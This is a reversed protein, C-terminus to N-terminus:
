GRPHASRVLREAAASLSKRNPFDDVQLPKHWTVSVEGGRPAGLVQLLHPGFDMDGWWGFFRPDLSDPATYAVSVPQVALGRLRESYLAAFLTSKFPLIRQGDTSTGEPFILLRQGTQLREELLNRQQGAERASRRVFVTGTM